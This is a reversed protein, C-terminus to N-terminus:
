SRHAAFKFAAYTLYRIGLLLYVVGQAVQGIELAYAVADGLVLEFVEGEVGVVYGDLRRHHALYSQGTGKVKQICSSGTVSVVHLIFSVM